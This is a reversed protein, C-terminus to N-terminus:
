NSVLIEKVMSRLENENGQFDRLKIMFQDKVVPYSLVAKVESSLKSDKLMLSLSPWISEAVNADINQKDLITNIYDIELNLDEDIRDQKLNNLKQFRLQIVHQLQFKVNEVVSQLLELVPVPHGDIM